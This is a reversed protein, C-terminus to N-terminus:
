YAMIMVLGDGGNGGEGGTVGAGGGGGGCGIAGDGGNGGTGATGNTGGGSGGSSCLPVRQFKGTFGAGGGAIGGALTALFGTADNVPGGAFNTNAAPTGGGGAGGCLISSNLTAAFTGVAGTHAGGAGGNVGPICLYRTLTMYSTSNSLATISGGAGGAGGGTTFGSTGLSGGFANTLMVSPSMSIFVASEMGNGMNAGGNGVKVYLTDPLFHAAVELHVMAGSGGGGGGGRNTGAAGSCGDGGIGGGGILIMSVMRVGKPKNWVQYTINAFSARTAHFTQVNMSQDALHFIDWM